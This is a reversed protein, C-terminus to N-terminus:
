GEVEWGYLQFIPLYEKPVYLRDEDQPILFYHEPLLLRHNGPDALNIVYRDPGKKRSLYRLEFARLLLPDTPAHLGLGATRAQVVMRRAEQLKRSGNVRKWFQNPRVADESFAPISLFPQLNPWIFYPLGSGNILQHENYSWRNAEARVTEDEFNDAHPHLYCLLRGYTDMFEHGFALFLVFAEESRGSQRLHRLMDAELSRQAAEAYRAHNSAVRAGDGIRSELYAMLGASVGLGERWRGSGFFDAWAAQKLSVFRTDGPLPFSSEPTDMGLFRLGLNKFLSVNVTDGDYVNQRVSGHEAGHRGLKAQGLKFHAANVWLSKSSLQM